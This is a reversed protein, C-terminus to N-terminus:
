HGRFLSLLLSIAHANKSKGLMSPLATVLTTLVGGLAGWVGSHAKLNTVDSRVAAVDTKVAQVDARLAGLDEKIADRFRPILLTALENADNLTLPDHRSSPM